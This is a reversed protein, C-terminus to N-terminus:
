GGYVIKRVEPDLFEEVEFKYGEPGFFTVSKINLRESIKLEKTLGELELKQLRKYVEDMNDVVLSLLVGDRTTAKVSGRKRDVCGIYSTKSLQYIHCYDDGQNCILPLGLKDEFFSYAGPLDDFYLFTIQGGFTINDNDFSEKDVNAAIMRDIDSDKYSLLKGFEYAIQYREAGYYKREAILANKRTKLEEYKEHVWEDKFIIINYRDKNLSTRFLDTVLAEDCKACKVGWKECLSVAYEWHEDREAVDRVPACLALQKSGGAVCEVFAGIGGVIRSLRDLEKM